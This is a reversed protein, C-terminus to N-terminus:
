IENQCISNKSILSNVRKKYGGRPSTLTRTPVILKDGGGGEQLHSLEFLNREASDKRGRILKEDGKEETEGSGRECFGRKEAL